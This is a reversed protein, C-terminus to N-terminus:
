AEGAPPPMRCFQSPVGSLARPSQTASYFQSASAGFQLKQTNSAMIAFGGTASYPADYNDWRTLINSHDDSPLSVFYIWFSVTFASADLVTALAPSTITYVNGNADLVPGHAADTHYETSSSAMTASSLDDVLNGDLPFFSVLDGVQHSGVQCVCQGGQGSVTGVPCDAAILDM